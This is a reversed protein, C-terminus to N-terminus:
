SAQDPTPHAKLVSLWIIFGPDGSFIGCFFPHVTDDTKEAHTRNTQEGVNLKVETRATEPTASRGRPQVGGSEVVARSESSCCGIGFVVFYETQM